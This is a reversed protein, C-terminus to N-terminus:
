ACNQPHRSECLVGYVTYNYRLSRLKGLIYSQLARYCEQEQLTEVRYMSPPNCMQRSLTSHITSKSQDRLVMGYIGTVILLTANQIHSCYVADM